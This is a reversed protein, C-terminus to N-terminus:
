PQVRWESTESEQMLQLGVRALAVFPPDDSVDSQAVLAACQELTVAAGAAQCANIFDDM